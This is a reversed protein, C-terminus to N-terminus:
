FPEKSCKLYFIDNEDLQIVFTNERDNAIIDTVDLRDSENIVDFLLDKFYNLPM